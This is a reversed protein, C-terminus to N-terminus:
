LARAAVIHQLRRSTDACLLNVRSYPLARLVKQWYEIVRLLRGTAFTTSREPLKLPLDPANLHRTVVLSGSLWILRWGHRYDAKAGLFRHQPTALVRRTGPRALTGAVLNTASGAAPM